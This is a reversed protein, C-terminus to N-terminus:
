EVNSSEQQKLLNRFKQQLSFECVFWPLSGEGRISRVIDLSKAAIQM